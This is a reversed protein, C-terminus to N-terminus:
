ILDLIDYRMDVKVRMARTEIFKSINKSYFAVRIMTPACLRHAFTSYCLCSM